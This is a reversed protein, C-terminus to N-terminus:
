RGAMSVSPQLKKLLLNQAAAFGRKFVKWSKLSIGACAEPGILLPISFRHVIQIQPASDIWRLLPTRCSEAGLDIAVLSKGGAQERELLTKEEGGLEM